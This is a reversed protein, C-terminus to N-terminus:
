PPVSEGASMCARPSDKKLNGRTHSPGTGQVPFVQPPLAPPAFILPPPPRPLCGKVRARSPASARTGLALWMYIGTM